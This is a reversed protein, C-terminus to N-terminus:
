ATANRENEYFYKTCALLFIAGWAFQNNFGWVSIMIVWYLSEFSWWKRFCYQKIMWVFCIAALLGFNMVFTPFIGGTGNGEELGPIVQPFYTVDYDIGFGFWANLSFPHVMQAYMISPVVRFSASHDTLIITAPDFTFVVSLFAKAREYAEMHSVELVVIMLLLGLFGWLMRKINRFDAIYLFLLILAIFATGSGMTLCTYLFALWLTKDQRFGHVFNYKGEQAMECMRIYSFMLLPLIAGAYSPEPALANLKFEADASIIIQNIVPLHFIVCIQQIFLVLAYAYILVRILKVFDERKFENRHLLRIFYLFAFLFMLGYLFSSARFASWHLFVSPFLSLFFIYVRLEGSRLFPFRVWLLVPIIFLALIVLYNRQDESTFFSISTLFLGILIWLHWKVSAFDNLKLNGISELLSKWM